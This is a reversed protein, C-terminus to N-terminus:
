YDSSSIVFNALVQASREKFVDMKEQEILFSPDRNFIRWERLSQESKSIVAHCSHGVGLGKFFRYNEATDGVRFYADM